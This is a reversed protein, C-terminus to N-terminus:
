VKRAIFRIITPNEDKYIALNKSEIEYIIKFSSDLLKQKMKDFDMFRRYHNTEGEQKSIKISKKFMDDNISRAEIFFLGKPKLIKSVQKITRNEQEENIAHLTFRSYIADMKKDISYKSFDAAIFKLNSLKNYKQLYQIEDECLDLAIVNIKNKAFYFADRGNGCGLELMYISEKTEICNLTSKSMAFKSDAESSSISNHKIYNEYCFIAFSSPEYNLRHSQYYKTWYIKNKQIYKLQKLYNAIKAIVNM